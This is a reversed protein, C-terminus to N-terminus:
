LVAPAGASPAVSVSGSVSRATLTLAQQDEATSADDAALTSHARGSTSSLDLWVLTGRRVGVAISGSTTSLDVTGRQAERVNISGSVATARLDACARGVEISGSVVRTAAADDVEVVRISGSVARAELTGHVAGLRIAGSVARAEVPGHAEDARISGSATSLQLGAMPGRVAISASAAEATAWSGRPVRVTVTVRPQKGFRRRPIEVLLKRGEADFRVDADLDEYRSTIDVCTETVDAADIEIAGRPNRIDVGIPEVAAFRHTQTPV